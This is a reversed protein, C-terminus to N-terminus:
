SKGKLKRADSSWWLDEWESDFEHEFYDIAANLEMPRPLEFTLWSGTSERFIRGHTVIITLPPQQM